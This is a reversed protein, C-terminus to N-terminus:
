GLFRSFHKELLPKFDLYSLVTSVTIRHIKLKDKVYLLKGEKIVRYRINLPLDWFISTDIKESSHALISRRKAAKDTVVCIDIDSYPKATGSARSGFLYIAEVGQEKKIANIVKTINKM